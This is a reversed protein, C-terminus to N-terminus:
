RELLDRADDKLVELEFSLFWAPFVWAWRREYSAPWRQAMRWVLKNVLSPHFYLHRSHTRFRVRTYYDHQHAGTFYDFSCMGFHHRHTPDSYANSSSFHPVTIFIRAGKRCVRYIEEMAGLIDDLHEIVDYAHVEAFQNDALPWPRDNLDHVIDPRTENTIDLNIAGPIPKRGCGINLVMPTIM